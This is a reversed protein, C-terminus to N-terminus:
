GSRRGGPIPATCGGALVRSVAFSGVSWTVPSFLVMITGITMFRSFIRTLQLNTEVSPLRHVLNVASRVQKGAQDRVSLLRALNSHSYSSNAAVALLDLLVFFFLLASFITVLDPQM